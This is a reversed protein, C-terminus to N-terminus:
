RLIKIFVPNEYRSLYIYITRGRLNQYNSFDNKVSGFFAAYADAMTWSPQLYVFTHMKDEIWVSITLEFLTWKGYSSKGQKYIFVRDIRASYFDNYM